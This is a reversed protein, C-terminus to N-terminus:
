FRLRLRGKEGEGLTALRMETLDADLMGSVVRGTLEIPKRECLWAAMAAPVRAEVEKGEGFMETFRPLWKRGESSGLVHDMLGTPTVAPFLAYYGVFNRPSPGATPPWVRELALNEVFRVLGAQAAAYGSAFGLGQHHGPGVFAVFAGGEPNRDLTEGAAQVLHGAGVLSVELDARWQDPAVEATPGLARMRGAAHVVADLRGHREAFERVAQCLRPADLVDGPYSEAVAGPVADSLAARAADLREAGRAYLGIIWGNEALVKATELGLGGSGGTVFVTKALSM